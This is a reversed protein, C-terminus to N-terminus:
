FVMFRKEYVVLPKYGFIANLHHLFAHRGEEQWSRIVSENIQEYFVRIREMSSPREGDWVQEAIEGILSLWM